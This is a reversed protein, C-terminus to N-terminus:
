KMELSERGGEGGESGGDEPGIGIKMERERM